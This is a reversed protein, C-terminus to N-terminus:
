TNRKPSACVLVRESFTLLCRNRCKSAQHYNKIAIGRIYFDLKPTYFLTVFCGNSVFCVLGVTVTTSEPHTQWIFLHFWTIGFPVAQVRNRGSKMPHGLATFQTTQGRCSDDGCFFAVQAWLTAAKRLWWTLLPHHAKSLVEQSRETHRSRPRSHCWWSLPIGELEKGRGSEKSVNLARM